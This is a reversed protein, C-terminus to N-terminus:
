MIRLIRINRVHVTHSCNAKFRDNASLQQELDSYVSTKYWMLLVLDTLPFSYCLKLHSNERLNKSHQMYWFIATLCKVHIGTHLEEFTWPSNWVNYTSFKWRTYVCIKLFYIHMSVSQKLCQLHFIWGRAYVCCETFTYMHIYLSEKLCQVHVVWGWAHIWCATFTYLHMYLSAKLCQM